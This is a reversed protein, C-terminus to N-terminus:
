LSWGNTIAAATLAAVQSQLTAVEAQAAALDTQLQVVDVGAFATQPTGNAIFDFATGNFRIYNNVAGITASNNMLLRCTSQTPTELRMIAAQTSEVNFRYTAATTGIATNGAVILQGGSNIRMREALIQYFVMPVATNTIFQAENNVAAVSFYASDTQNQCRIQSGATGDVTVTTQNTQEVPTETGIGVNGDDTVIVDSTWGAAGADQDWRFMQGDLTGDPIDGGGGGGGGGGGSPLGYIDWDPSASLIQFSVDIGYAEDGVVPQAVGDYQL